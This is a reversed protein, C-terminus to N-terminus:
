RALSISSFRLRELELAQATRSSFVGPKISTEAFAPIPTITVEDVTYASADLITKGNETVTKGQPSDVMAFSMGNVYKGRVLEMVDRGATTNPLDIEVKVGFSDQAIRLSGNATNGLVNQFDHHYLALTQAAFKASGPLLRVQYGGRDSSLVNWVLAYGSLTAPKGDTAASLTLRADRNFIERHNLSGM